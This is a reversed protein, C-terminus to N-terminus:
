PPFWCATLYFPIGWSPSCLLFGPCVKLIRCMAWLMLTIGLQSAVMYMYGFLIFFLLYFFNLEGLLSEGRVFFMSLGYIFGALFVLISSLITPNNEQIDVAVKGKILLVDFLAKHVMKRGAKGKEIAAGKGPHPSMGEFLQLVDGKGQKMLDQSSSGHATSVAVAQLYQSKRPMQDVV